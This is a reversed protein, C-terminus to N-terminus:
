WMRFITKIWYPCEQRAFIVVGDLQRTYEQGKNIKVAFTEMSNGTTLVDDVILVNSVDDSCYPKLAEAFKLGGRPVGHVENFQMQKSVLYALTEISEDSLDDCEIKFDSKGGSHLIIDQKTFLNSM